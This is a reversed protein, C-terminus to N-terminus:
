QNWILNYSPCLSIREGNNLTFPGGVAAGSGSGNARKFVSYLTEMPSGNIIEHDPDGLLTEILRKPVLTEALPLTNSGAKTCSIPSNGHYYDEHDNGYTSIVPVYSLALTGRIRICPRWVYRNRPKSRIGQKQRTPFTFCGLWRQERNIPEVLCWRYAQEM